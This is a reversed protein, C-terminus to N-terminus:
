KANCQTKEKVLYDSINIVKPYKFDKSKLQRLVQPSFTFFKESFVFCFM